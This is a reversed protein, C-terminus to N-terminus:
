DAYIWEIKSLHVVKFSDLSNFNIAVPRSTIKPNIYILLNSKIYSDAM